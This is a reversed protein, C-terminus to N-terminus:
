DEAPRMESPDWFARMTTIKGADDFTMVDIIDVCMTAGGITPRAQLPWAAENGAVRVPGTRRLEVSDAVGTMADFFAGIAESGVNVPSGIPDEVTADAAFLGVYAARDGSTFAACYADVASRITAADAPM